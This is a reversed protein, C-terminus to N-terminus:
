EENADHDVISFFMFACRTFNVGILIVIWSWSFVVAQSISLLAFDKPEVIMLVFTLVVALLTWFITFKLLGLMQKFTITKKIAELFKNSKTAVFVFFTALFGAFLSLLGFIGSYIASVNYEEGQSTAQTLLSAVVALGFAKTVPAGSLFTNTRRSITAALQM